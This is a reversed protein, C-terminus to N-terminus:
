VFPSEVFTVCLLILAQRLGDSIERVSGIDPVIWGVAIFFVRVDVAFSCWPRFFQRPLKRLTCPLSLFRFSLFFRSFLLTTRSAQMSKTGGGGGSGGIDLEGMEYGMETRGNLFYIGTAEDNGVKWRTLIELFKLWTETFYVWKVIKTRGCGNNIIYCGNLTPYNRLCYWEYDIYTSKLKM